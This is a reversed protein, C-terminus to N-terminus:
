PCSPAAEPGMPKADVKPKPLKVINKLKRNVWLELPFDYYDRDLRWRAPYATLHQITKAIRGPGNAAIPARDFAIRFYDRMRQVRRHEKGRLWPLVTYRPFYDVWGELTKPVAMGLEESRQFIPSGPYPTFINTWFEAGPFRRCVDLMFEITERREKEGEGPHGFIINFSPIVGARICRDTAEYVDALNQFDKNMLKMVAPSASDIGQSIQHLGSRRLLSLEEVSLRSTLNTTAQISWKYRSGARVLGEAIGLARPLDV